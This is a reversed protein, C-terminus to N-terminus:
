REVYTGERISNFGDAPRGTNEALHRPYLLRVTCDPVYLVRDFSVTIMEGTDTKFVYEAEGISKVDLGSAIGKLKTPQVQQIASTFDEKCNTITISAGTDIVFTTEDPTFRAPLGHNTAVYAQLNSRTMEAEQQTMSSTPTYHTVYKPIHHITRGETTIDRRIRRSYHHSSGRRPIPPLCAQLAQFEALAQKLDDM